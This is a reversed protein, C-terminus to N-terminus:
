DHELLRKPNPRPQDVSEDWKRRHIELLTAMSTESRYTRRRRLAQELWATIESNTGGWKRVMAYEWLTRDHLRLPIREPEYYRSRFDPHEPLILGLLGAALGATRSATALDIEWDVWQSERTTPGVLVVLIDCKRLADKYAAWSDANAAEWSAEMDAVTSSRVSWHSSALLDRFENAYHRDGPVHSLFINQANSMVSM